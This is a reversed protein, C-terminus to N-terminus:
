KVILVPVKSENVVQHSVSGLLLEELGGLGRSGMVILDFQGEEAEAVIVNAPRGDGLKATIKLGKATEYARKQAEMLMEESHSKAEKYYNKAWKPPIATVVATMPYPTVPVNFPPIVNLIRIEAKYKEGLDLALNLAKDAHESGDIPVLIKNM